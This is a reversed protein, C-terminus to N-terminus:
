GHPATVPLSAAAPVAMAATAVAVVAAGSADPLHEALMPVLQMAIATSQQQQQLSSLQHVATRCVQHLDAAAPLRLLALCNGLLQQACPLEHPQAAGSRAAEVTGGAPNQGALWAMAAQNSSGTAVVAELASGYHRSASDTTSGSRSGDDRAAPLLGSQRWHHQLVKWLSSCFGPQLAPLWGVATSAWAQQQQQLLQQKSNGAASGQLVSGASGAGASSSNMQQVAGEHCVHAATAITSSYYDMVLVLDQLVSAMTYSNGCCTRAVLVDHCSARSLSLRAAAAPLTQEQQLQQHHQQMAGAAACVKYVAAHLDLYWPLVATKEEVISEYL